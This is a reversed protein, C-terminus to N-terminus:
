RQETNTKKMMIAGELDLKKVKLPEKKKPNTINVRNSVQEEIPPEVEM